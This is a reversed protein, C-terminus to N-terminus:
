RLTRHVPLAKSAPRLTPPSPYVARCQPMAHPCSPNKCPPGPSHHCPHPASVSDSVDDGGFVSIANKEPLALKVNLSFIRCEHGVHTYMPMPPLQPVIDLANLVRFTCPVAKNYKRAFRGNGARPSGFTYSFVEHPFERCTDTQRIATSRERAKWSSALRKCASHRVTALRPQMEAAAVDAAGDGTATQCAPAACVRCTRTTRLTALCASILTTHSLAPDTSQLSHQLAPIVTSSKRRYVTVRHCLRM